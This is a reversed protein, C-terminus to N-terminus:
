KYVRVHGDLTGVLIEARGDGDVDALVPATSGAPLPSRWLLRGATPSDAKIATIGGGALLFEPRGDGDVDATVTASWDIVSELRWREAGTAADYCRFTGDSHRQGFELRGDGDVDAIGPHAQAFANPGPDVNWLPKRDRLSWAGFQGFNGCNLVDLQGDGDVDVVVQSGYATWGGPNAYLSNAILPPQLFSGDQGSLATCLDLTVLLVDDCGDGNVDAVSAMGTPGLTHHWIVEASADNHWLISGDRGNLAWSQAADNGTMALRAAVYVDLHGDGDFDGFTARSIPAYLPTVVAVGGRDGGEYPPAPPTEWRTTGDAALLAVGAQGGPLARAILTEKRGDGDVDAILPSPAHGGGAPIAWGDAEWLPEPQYDPVNTGDGGGGGTIPVARRGNGVLRLALIRNRSTTVVIENAGDGDLDAVAPATLFTNGAAWHREANGPGFARVHLDGGTDSLVAGIREHWALLRLGLNSDTAFTAVERCEVGNRAQSCVAFREPASDGDTDFSVAL